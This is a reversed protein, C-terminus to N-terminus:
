KRKATDEEIPEGKLQTFVYRVHPPQGEWRRCGGELRLRYRMTETEADFVIQRHRKLIRGIARERGKPTDRENPGFLTKALGQEVALTAWEMPRLSTGIKAVGLIGLAERIPDDATKCTGYNGLFDTFGNVRLIGGITRAWRTMPHRVSTDLPCGAEKWTEIMGRLEAEIRERNRPLFELKPNEAVLSLRDQIDGTPVLGITLSRNMM